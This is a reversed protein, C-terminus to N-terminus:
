PDFCTVFYADFNATAPVFVLLGSDRRGTRCDANMPFFALSPLRQSLGASGHLSDSDPIGLFDFLNGVAITHLEFHQKSV